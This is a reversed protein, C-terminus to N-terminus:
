ISSMEITDPDITRWSNNMVGRYNWVPYEQQVNGSSDVPYFNSEM